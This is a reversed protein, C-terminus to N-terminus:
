GGIRPSAAVVLTVGLAFGIVAALLLTLGWRRTRRLGCLLAGAVAFAASVLGLSGALKWTVLEGILALLGALVVARTSVLAAPPRRRLEITVVDPFGMAEPMEPDPRRHTLAAALLAFATGHGVIVLDEEPHRTLVERTATDVRRATTALPEWGEHVSDKPRAFAQRRVAALDPVWGGHLRVQEAFGDVVEVPGDTLLAATERAKPEPSSLWRAREPLRGSLRLRQVDEVADPALHWAAAPRDQEVEPRGHRVLHIRRTTTM